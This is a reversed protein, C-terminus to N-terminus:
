NAKKRTDNHKKVMDLAGAAVEQGETLCRQFVNNLNVVMMAAIAWMPILWLPIGFMWPATYSWTNPGFRIFIAESAAGGVGLLGYSVLHPLLEDVTGFQTVFFVLLVGLIGARSRNGKFQYFVGAVLLWLIAIRAVTPIVDLLPLMSLLLKMHYIHLNFRSTAAAYM